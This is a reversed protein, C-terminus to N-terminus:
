KMIASVVCASLQVYMSLTAIIPHTECLIFSPLMAKKDISERGGERERERERELLKEPNSIPEQLLTISAQFRADVMNTM